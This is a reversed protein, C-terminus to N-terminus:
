KLTKLFDALEDIIETDKKGVAASVCSHLHDTIVKSLVGKLAGNASNILRMVDVCPADAEIMEELKRLQGEIRRLRACLKEKEQCNRHM